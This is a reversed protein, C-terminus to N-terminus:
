SNILNETTRFSNQLDTELYRTRTENERILQIQM